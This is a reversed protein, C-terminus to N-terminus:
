LGRQAKEEAAGSDGSGSCGGRRRQITLSQGHKGVCSGDAQLEGERDRSRHPDQKYTQHTNHIGIYASPDTGKTYWSPEQRGM